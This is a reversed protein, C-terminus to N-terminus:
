MCTTGSAWSDSVSIILRAPQHPDPRQKGTGAPEVEGHLGHEAALHHPVGFDVLGCGLHQGVM